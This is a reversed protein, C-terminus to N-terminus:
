ITGHHRNLNSHIRENNQKKRRRTRVPCSPDQAALGDTGPSIACHPGISILM